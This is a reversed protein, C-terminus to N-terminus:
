IVHGLAALAMALVILGVVTTLLYFNKMPLSRKACIRLM